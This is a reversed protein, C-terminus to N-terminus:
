NRMAEHSLVIGYHLDANRGSQQGLYINRRGGEMRTEATAGRGQKIVAEGSLLQEYLEGNEEGGGSYLMRM